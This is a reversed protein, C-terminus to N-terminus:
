RDTTITMEQVAEGVVYYGLEMGPRRYEVVGASSQAFSWGLRTVIQEVAAASPRMPAGELMVRGFWRHKGRWEIAGCRGIAAASLGACVEGLAVEIQAKAEDRFTGLREKNYGTATQYVAVVFVSLFVAM